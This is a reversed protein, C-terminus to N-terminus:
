KLLKRGVLEWLGSAAAGTVFGHLVAQLWDGTTMATAVVASLVGAGAAVWPKAPDPLLKSLLPVKTALFVLIMIAMSVLLAWDGGKAADVAGKILGGLEDDQAFAIVPFLSAISLTSVFLLKKM